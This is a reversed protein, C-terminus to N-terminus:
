AWGAQLIQRCQNRQFVLGEAFIADASTLKAPHELATV